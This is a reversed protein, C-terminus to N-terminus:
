EFIDCKSWHEIWKLLRYNNAYLSQVKFLKKYIPALKCCSDSLKGISTALDELCSIFDREHEELNAFKRGANEMIVLAAAQLRKEEQIELSHVRRNSM